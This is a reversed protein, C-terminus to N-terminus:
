RQGPCGEEEKGVLGVTEQPRISLDVGDVARVIKDQEGALFRALMNHRIYFHKYVGRAEFLPQIVENTKVDAM